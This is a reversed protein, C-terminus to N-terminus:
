FPGVHPTDETAGVLSGASGTTGSPSAVRSGATTTALCGLPLGPPHEAGLHQAPSYGFAQRPAAAAELDHMPAGVAPLPQRRCCLLPGQASCGRGSYSAGRRSGLGCLCSEPYPAPPARVPVPSVHPVNGLWLSRPHWTGRVVLPWCAGKPGHTVPSSSHLHVRLGLSERLSLRRTGMKTRQAGPSLKLAVTRM